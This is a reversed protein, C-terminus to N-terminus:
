LWSSVTRRRSAVIRAIIAIFGFGRFVGVVCDM